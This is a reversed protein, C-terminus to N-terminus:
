DDLHVTLCGLNSDDFRNWEPFDRDSFLIRFLYHRATRRSLGAYPLPHFLGAPFSYRVM